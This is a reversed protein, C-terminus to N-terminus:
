RKLTETDRTSMDCDELLKSDQPCLLPSEFFGEWGCDDDNELDVILDKDKPGIDSCTPHASKPALSFQLPIWKTAKRTKLFVSDKCRKAPSAIDQSAGPDPVDVIDDRLPSFPTSPPLRPALWAPTSKTKERRGCTKPGMQQHNPKLNRTAEVKKQGRFPGKQDLKGNGQYQADREIMEQVTATSPLPMARTKSKRQRSPTGYTKPM